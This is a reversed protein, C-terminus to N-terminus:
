VPSTLSKLDVVSVLTYGQSHKTRGTVLNSMARHNLHRDRCFSAMNDVVVKDGSHELVVRKPAGGIGRKQNPSSSYGRYYPVTGLLVRRFYYTLLGHSKCYADVNDIRVPEGHLYVTTPKHHRFTRRQQTAKIDEPTTQPLCYFNEMILGPPNEFLYKLNYYALGNQECWRKLNVIEIVENTRVDKLRWTKSAAQSMAERFEPSCQGRSDGCPRLNYGNPSYSELFSAYFVELENLRKDDAIGHRLIMVDFADKGYKAVSHLLYENQTYDWWRGGKYRRNFTMRTQGIYM